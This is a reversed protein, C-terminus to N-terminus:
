TLNRGAGITGAGFITGLNDLVSGAVDSHIDNYSNDSLVIAGGAAVSVIGATGNAGIVLHAGNGDAANLEITGQDTITGEAVLTQGNNVQVASGATIIVPANAGTGDFITGDNANITGGNATTLSGGKVTEGNLEVHTNAGDAKIIGSNTNGTNDVTAGSLVLGGNGATSNTSELVGANTVNVGTINLASLGDANVVGNAENTLTLGANPLITGAGSITGNNDLLSGAANSYIYNYPGDSLVIAGGAAVTM